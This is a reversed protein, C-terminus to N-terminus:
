LCFIEEDERADERLSFHKLLIRCSSKRAYDLLSSTPWTNLWYTWPPTVLKYLKMAMSAEGKDETVHQQKHRRYWMPKENAVNVFVPVGCIKVHFTMKSM